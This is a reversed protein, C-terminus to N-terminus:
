HAPSWHASSVLATWPSPTSAATGAAERGPPAPRRQGPQRLPVTLTQMTLFNDNGNHSDQAFTMMKFGQRIINKWVHEWLIVSHECAGKREREKWLQTVQRQPIQHDWAEAQKAKEPGDAVNNQDDCYPAEVGFQSLTLLSPPSLAGTAPADVLDHGGPADSVEAEYRLTQHEETNHGRDHQSSHGPLYSM